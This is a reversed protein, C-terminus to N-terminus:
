VVFIFDTLALLPANALTAFQIANAGGLGDADYFLGGTSSNYIINQDATGALGTANIVFDAATITGGLATFIANSLAIIDTGSDYEAITDVNTAANLTTSFVFVDAGNGDFLIDNGGKGDLFNVGDNGIITQGLENGTLNIAGTGLNNTTALTEIESGASLTYSVSANVRDTGGAAAETAVTAASTVTYTDDGGLGILTSAGANGIITQALANGTLTLAATGAANTTSLIEIDDSADLAFNVSANVRDATGQGADEIIVDGINGVVYTDNGGLGTM